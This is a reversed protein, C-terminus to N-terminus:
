YELLAGTKKTLMNLVQEESLAEFPTLSYQVDLMEGELLSPTLWNAMRQITDLVVEPAVGRQSLVGLLAYAWSQQLDGALIAVAQGYHGATEADLHHINAAHARYQAHVTPSGRRTDDRDIIDDHVLTWTHFVEVAAAAPRAQNADGGVAGCSLLLVVPRLAKGRRGIYSYIAEHRDEPQFVTAGAWSDVFDYGRRRRREVASALARGSGTQSTGPSAGTVSM